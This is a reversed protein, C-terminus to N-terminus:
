SGGLLMLILSEPKRHKLTLIQVFNLVHTGFLPGCFCSNYNSFVWM